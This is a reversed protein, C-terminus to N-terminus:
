ALFGIAIRAIILSTYRVNISFLRTNLPILQIWFFPHAMKVGAYAFMKMPFNSFSCM